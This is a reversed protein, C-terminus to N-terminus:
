SPENVDPPAVQAAVLGPERTPEGSRAPPEPQRSGLLEEALRDLQTEITADIRGQSTCVVCGGPSVTEDAVIRVHRCQEHTKVLQEFFRRAAQEDQPSIKVVLDNRAGVRDIVERLNEVVVERDLQGIRKVIRAAIAVALEILDHHAASLLRRKQQEFQDIASQLAQILSAQQAAFEQRAQECAATRGEKAGQEYGERRGQEIAERRVQEAQQRAEALIRDAEARAEAVIRDAQAAIDYLNLVRPRHVGAAAQEAKLVTAM